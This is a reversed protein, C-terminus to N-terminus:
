AGACAAMRVPDDAPIPQWDVGTISGDEEFAAGEVVTATRNGTCDWLVTLKQLPAWRGFFWLDVMRQSPDQPNTRLSAKDMAIFRGVYPVVYSWPRWPATEEVKRAVVFSDPLQGAM